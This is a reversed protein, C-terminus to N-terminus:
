QVGRIALRNLEMQRSMVELLASYRMATQSAVALEIDLRMDSSVTDSSQQIVRPVIGDIEKVTSDKHLRLQDEFTVKVAQYDNTNANAINNATYNYRMSLGDLAKVLLASIVPDM